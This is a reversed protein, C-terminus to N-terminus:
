FSKLNKNEEFVALIKVNSVNKDYLSRWKFSQGLCNM